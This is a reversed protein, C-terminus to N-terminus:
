AILTNIVLVEGDSQIATCSCGSLPLQSIPFRVRIRRKAPNRRSSSRSRTQTLLPPVADHEWTVDAALLVGVTARRRDFM